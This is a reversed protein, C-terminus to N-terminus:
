YSSYPTYTLIPLPDHAAPNEAEFWLACGLIECREIRLFKKLISKIQEWSKLGLHSNIGGLLLAYWDRLPSQTTSHAGM